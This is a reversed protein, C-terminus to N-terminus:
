KVPSPVSVKVKRYTTCAFSESSSPMLMPGFAMKPPVSRSPEPLSAASANTPKRCSEVRLTFWRPSWIAGNTRSSPTRMADLGALAFYASPSTTLTTIANLSTTCTEPCGDSASEM